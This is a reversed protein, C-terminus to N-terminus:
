AVSGQMAQLHRAAGFGAELENGAEGDRAIAHHVVGDIEVQAVGDGARRSLGGRAYELGRLTWSRM